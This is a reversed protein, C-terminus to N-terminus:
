VLLVLKKGPLFHSTLLTAAGLREYFAQPQGPRLSLSHGTIPRILLVYHAAENEGNGMNEKGLLVCRWSHEFTHPSETDLVAREKLVAVDLRLERAEVGLAWDPADPPGHVHETWEASGFKIDLFAIRGNYRM